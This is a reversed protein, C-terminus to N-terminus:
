TTCGRPCAGSSRWRAPNASNAVSAGSGGVVLGMDNVSESASAETNALVGLDVLASRPASSAYFAHESGGVDGYGGIDGNKNIANGYTNAFFAGPYQPRVPRAGQFRREYLVGAGPWGALTAVHGRGPGFANIGAGQDFTGSSLPAIVTPSASGLATFARTGVNVVNGTGVVQGSDNIGSAQTYTGQNSGISLNQITSAQGGSSYFGHQVGNKDTYTGAVQGGANISTAMSTTAGAPVPAAYFSGGAASTAAVMGGQTSTSM